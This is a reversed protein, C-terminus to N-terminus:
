PQQQEHKAHLGNVRYFLLSIVSVTRTNTFLTRADLQRTNKTVVFFTNLMQLEPCVRHLIYTSHMPVHPCTSHKFAYISHDKVCITM